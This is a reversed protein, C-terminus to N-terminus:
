NGGDELIQVQLILDVVFDPQPPNKPPILAYYVAARKGLLAKTFGEWMMWSRTDGGSEIRVIASDGMPGGDVRRIVGVFSEIKVIGAEIAGWWEPSGVIGNVTSLGFPGSSLSAVRIQSLKNADQRLDYAVNLSGVELLKSDMNGGEELRFERLREEPNLLGWRRSSLKL